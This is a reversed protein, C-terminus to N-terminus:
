ALRNGSKPDFLVAKALDFAFAIRQGPRADADGRMRAIIEKGGGPTIVYTDSGAPEVMEVVGEALDVMSSTRDAGAADTVAEPRIGLIVEQGPALSTKTVSPPIRLTLATDNDRAVELALTGDRAGVRSLLLNMSPSGMFDAVFLNAPRSYVESPSGVQQLAGDRLVAIKTALTM